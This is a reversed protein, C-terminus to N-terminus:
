SKLKKKIKKRLKRATLSESESVRYLEWEGDSEYEDEEDDSEPESEPDGDSFSLQNIVAFLKFRSPKLWVGFDVNRKKM